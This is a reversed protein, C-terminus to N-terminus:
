KESNIYNLFTLRLNNSIITFSQICCLLSCISAYALGGMLQQICSWGMCVYICYCQKQNIDTFNPSYRSLKYFGGIGDLRQVQIRNSFLVNAASQGLFHTIGMGSTMVRALQVNGNLRPLMKKASNGAIQYRQVIIVCLVLRNYAACYSAQKGYQRKASVCKIWEFPAFGRISASQKACTTYNIGSM